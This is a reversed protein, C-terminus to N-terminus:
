RHGSASTELSRHAPQHSAEEFYFVEGRRSRLQGIQNTKLLLRQGVMFVRGIEHWKSYQRNVLRRVQDSFEHAEFRNGSQDSVTLSRVWVKQRFTGM